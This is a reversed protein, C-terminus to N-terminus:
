KNILENIEDISVEKKPELSYFWNALNEIQDKIKQPDSEKYQSIVLTANNLANLWKINDNKEDRIKEWKKDESTKAENQENQSLDNSFVKEANQRSGTADSVYTQKFSKGTNPNKEEKQVVELKMVGKQLFSQLKEHLDQNTFWTHPAAEYTVEYAYWNGYQGQGKTFPDTGGFSVIAPINTQLEFKPNHEAM